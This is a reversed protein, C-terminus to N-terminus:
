ESQAVNASWNHFTGESMEQKLFANETRRQEDISNLNRRLIDLGKSEVQRRQRRLRNIQGFKANMANHIRTSESQLQILEEKAEEEEKELWRKEKAIKRTSTMTLWCM